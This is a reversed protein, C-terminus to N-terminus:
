EFLSETSKLMQNRFLIAHTKFEPIKELAEFDAMRSNRESRIEDSLCTSAQTHLEASDNLDKEYQKLLIEGSNNQTQSM